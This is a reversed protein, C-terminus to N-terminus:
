DEILYRLNNNSLDVVLDPNNLPVLINGIHCIKINKLNLNLLKPVNYFINDKLKSLYNFSLNLDTLNPLNKFVNYPLDIIIQHSLDLKTLKPLDEFAESELTLLTQTSFTLEQLSPLSKFATTGIERINNGENFLLEKL